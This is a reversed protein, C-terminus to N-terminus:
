YVSNIGEGFVTNLLLQSLFLLLQTSFLQLLEVSNAFFPFKGTKM